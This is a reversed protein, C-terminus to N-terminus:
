PHQQATTLARQGAWEERLVEAERCVAEGARVCVFVNAQREAPCAHRDCCRCPVVAVYGLEVLALVPNGDPDDQSNKRGEKRTARASAKQQVRLYTTSFVTSASYTAYTSFFTMKTPFRRVIAELTLRAGDKAARRDRKLQRVHETFFECSVSSTCRLLDRGFAEGDGGEGEGRGGRVGGGGPDGEREREEGRM